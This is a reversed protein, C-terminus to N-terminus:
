GESAPPVKIYRSDKRVVTGATKMRSLAVAASAKNLDGREVADDVSIGDEGAEDLLANLTGVVDTRGKDKLMAIITDVEDLRAKIGEMEM